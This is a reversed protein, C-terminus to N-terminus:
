AAMSDPPSASEPARLFAPVFRRLRSFDVRPTERGMRVTLLIGLVGLAINAM